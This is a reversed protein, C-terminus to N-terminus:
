SQSSLTLSCLLRVWNGEADGRRRTFWLRLQEGPSGAHGDEDFKDAPEARQEDEAGIDEDGGPTEGATRRQELPHVSKAGGKEHQVGPPM